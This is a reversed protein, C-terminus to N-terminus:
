AAPAPGAAFAQYSVSQGATGYLTVAHGTVAITDRTNAPVVWVGAGQSPATGGSSAGGWAVTVPNAGARVTIAGLPARYALTLYGDSAPFVRTAVELVNNVSRGLVRTMSVTMAQVLQQLQSVLESYFAREAQKPTLREPRLPAAQAPDQSAAAEAQNDVTSTRFFSM